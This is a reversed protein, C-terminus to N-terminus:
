FEFNTDGDSKMSSWKDKNFSFMSAIRSPISKSRKKRKLKPSPSELFDLKEPIPEPEVNHCVLEAPEPMPKDALTLCQAEPLNDYDILFNTSNELSDQLSGQYDLIGLSNMKRAFNRRDFKRGLILEYLRQLQPMTFTQPLLDFSVPNFYLSHKLAERAAALIQAHDFALEPLKDVPFWEAREADDGGVVPVNKVLAFFPVTVVRQRPDRDPASFVRIQEMYEAKLSTEEFLERKAGEEVTEEPKIFGGPLAWEGKFPELGRKVLLVLLDKGDYSFIVCDATLAVQPYKYCYPYAEGKRIKFVSHAM